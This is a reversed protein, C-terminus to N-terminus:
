GTSTLVEIDLQRILRGLASGGGEDVQLAM